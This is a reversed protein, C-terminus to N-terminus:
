AKTKLAIKKDFIGRKHAIGLAEDAIDSADRALSGPALGEPDAVIAAGSIASLFAAAWFQEETM